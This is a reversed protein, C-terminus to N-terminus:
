DVRTEKGCAACVKTYPKGTWEWAHGLPRTWFCRRNMQRRARREDRWAKKEANVRVKEAVNVGQVIVDDGAREPM